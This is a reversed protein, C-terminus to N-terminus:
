FRYKWNLSGYADYTNQQKFEKNLCVYTYSFESHSWDFALGARFELVVPERTVSPSAHFVDGDLFENYLVGRGGADSFVYWGWRPLIAAAFEDPIHDGLRVTAGLRASTQINGLAVGGRPLLQLRLNNPEGWDLVRWTRDLRLLLGPENKLQHDWGNALHDGVLAHWWNQANGGLAWPGVVGLEIEYRDLTPIQNATVGRDERLGGLYLWGAYPRDNTVHVKGALVQRIAAVIKDTAERKMVYGRAGARLAREAYSMEDHMSLVIVGVNPQFRKLDKILEIGSRGVMSVDAIVVDPKLALIVQLARAADEAEGCVTLDGQQRLHIKLWERALPHDDVLFIRKPNM